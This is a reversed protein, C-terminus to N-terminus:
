IHMNLELKRLESFKTKWHSIVKKATDSEQNNFAFYLEHINIPGCGGVEDLFKCFSLIEDAENIYMSEEKCFFGEEFSGTIRGGDLILEVNRESLKNSKM